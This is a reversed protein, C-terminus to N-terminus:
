HKVDVALRTPNALELIRYRNPSAVGLVWIVEAEFDCTSEVEKLIPFSISRERDRVTPEGSDTHAQAPSFRVEIWADGAVQVVEGSGCQRIPKDIYEIHYSPITNGEFEFEVRDFGDHQTTRVEKLVVVGINPKLKEVVGTTGKFEESAKSKSLPKPAPIQNYSNTRAPSAKHPINPTGSTKLEEKMIVVEHADVQVPYSQKVPGEFKAEVKAGIELAQWPVLKLKNKSREIIRTQSTIHVSAKDYPASDSTSEILIIAHIRSHDEFKQIQRIHGRIDPETKKTSHSAVCGCLLLILLLSPSRRFAIM